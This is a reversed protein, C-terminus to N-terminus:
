NGASQINLIALDTARSDKVWVLLHQRTDLGGVMKILTKLINKGKFEFRSTLVQHCM